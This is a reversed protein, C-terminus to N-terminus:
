RQALIISCCSPMQILLSKQKLRRTSRFRRKYIPLIRTVRMPPRKFSRTSGDKSNMRMESLTSFASHLTFVLTLLNHFLLSFFLFSSREFVYRFAVPTRSSTGSTVRKRRSTPMADWYRSEGRRSTRRIRM